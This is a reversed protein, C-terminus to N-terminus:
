GANPEVLFIEEIHAFDAFMSIDASKFVTNPTEEINQIKGMMLGKPIEAELGSTIIIDGPLLEESQDIMELKIGTGYKGRVLGNARTTQTLCNISSEPSTLLMVKSSRDFVETIKGIMVGGEATVAQNVRAGEKKGLNIIVFEGYGDSSRSIIRGMKFNICDSGGCLSEKFKLQRRLTENERKTEQLQFAELRLARNEEQLKENDSKFSDIKAITYFFDSVTNSSSQFNGQAPSLLSLATNKAGGLYGKGDLILLIAFVILVSLFNRFGIASKQM